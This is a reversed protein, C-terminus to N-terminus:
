SRPPDVVTGLTGPSTASLVRRRGDRVDHALFFYTPIAFIAGSEKCARAPQDGHHVAGAGRGSRCAIPSSPPFASVIQAVGSSISVAVTLIYDTLLAAGATQAPLEGLNDRAVIYAGGGGPYAHITQEYSITVIALLGVIALSIPFRMASPRRHRGAGPHGPNGAHRLGDLVPRRLRLGGARDVQRHDPAARRRHAAAPRDALHAVLATRLAGSQRLPARRTVGASGSSRHPYPLEDPILPLLRSRGGARRLATAPQGAAASPPLRPWNIIWCPTIRSGRAAQGSGDARTGETESDASAAKAPPPTAVEPISDVQGTVKVLDGRIWGTRGDALSVQYWGTASNQGTVAMTNEHVVDMVPYSTGPGQRVNAARVIVSVQAQSGTDAWASVPLMAALLVVVLTAFVSKVVTFM